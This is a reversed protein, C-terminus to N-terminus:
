GSGPASTSTAARMTCGLEWASRAVGARTWARRACDGWEEEECARPGRGADDRGQGRGAEECAAHEARSLLDQLRPKIGVDQRRKSSAVVLPAGLNPDVGVEKGLHVCIAQVGRGRGKYAEGQQREVSRRALTRDGVRGRGYGVKASREGGPEEEGLDGVEGV